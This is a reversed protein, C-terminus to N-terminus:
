NLNIGDWTTVRCGCTSVIFKALCQAICRQFTYNEADLCDGYPSPLMSLQM